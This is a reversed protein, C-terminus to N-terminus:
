DNIATNKTNRFGTEDKVGKLGADSGDILPNM